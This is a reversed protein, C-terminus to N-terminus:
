KSADAPSTGSGPTLRDIDQEGLQELLEYMVQVEDPQKMTQLIERGVSTKVANLMRVADAPSRKWKRILIEKAQKPPLKSFYELERQFGSDQAAETLKEKQKKWREVGRDFEEKQAIQDRLVQELLERQSRLDQETRELSARRLQQAQREAAIQESSKAPTPAPQAPQTTAAGQDAAKAGSDDAEQAADGRLVKAIEKASEPSLRGSVVLYGGLGGLALLHAIALVAIINYAKGLM